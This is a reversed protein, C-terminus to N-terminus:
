HPLLIKIAEPPTAVIIEKKKLGKQDYDKKNWTLILINGYQERLKLALAAFDADGPDSVLDQAEEMYRNYMEPDVVEVDAIVIELLAKLEEWPRGKKKTLTQAHRKIEELAIRPTYTPYLESLLILTRRTYGAEKLLSSIIINTDVVVATEKERGPKGEGQEGAM